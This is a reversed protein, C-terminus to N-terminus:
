DQSSTLSMLKELDPRIDTAAQKLEDEMRSMAEELLSPFKENIVKNLAVILGYPMEHVTSRFTEQLELVRPCNPGDASIALGNGVLGSESAHFKNVWEQATDWNRLLHSCREINSM